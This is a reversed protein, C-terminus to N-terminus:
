IAGARLLPDSGRHRPVDDQPHGDAGHRRAARASATASGCWEEAEEAPNGGGAGGAGDLRAHRNAAGAPPERRNPDDSAEVACVDRAPPESRWPEQEHSTGEPSVFEM